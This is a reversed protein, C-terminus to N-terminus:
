FKTGRIASSLSSMQVPFPTKTEQDEFVARLHLQRQRRKVRIAMQTNNDRELQLHSYICPRAYVYESCTNVLVKSLLRELILTTANRVAGGIPPSEQIVRTESPLYSLLKERM